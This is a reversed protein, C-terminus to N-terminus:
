AGRIWLKINGNGKFARKRRQNHINQNDNTRNYLVVKLMWTCCYWCTNHFAENSTYWCLTAYAVEIKKFPWFMERETAKWATFTWNLHVIYGLIDKFHVCIKPFLHSIIQFNVKAMSKLPHKKIIGSRRKEYCCFWYKEIKLYYCYVFSVAFAIWAIVINM